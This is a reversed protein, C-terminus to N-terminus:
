RGQPAAVFDLKAPVTKGDAAIRLRLKKGVSTGTFTPSMGYSIDPWAQMLELEYEGPELQLQLQEGLRITDVYSPPGGKGVSRVWVHKGILKWPVSYLHRRFQIFSDIHVKAESWVVLEFPM